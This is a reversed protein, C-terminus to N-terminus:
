GGLDKLLESVAVRMKAPTLYTGQSIERKIRKVLDHRVDPLKALEATVKALFSLEVTEGRLSLPESRYAHPLSRPGKTPFWNAGFASSPGQIEM